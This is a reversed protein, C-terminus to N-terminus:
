HASSRWLDLEVSQLLPIDATLVAAVEVCANLVDITFVDVCISEIGWCSCYGLLGCATVPFWRTPIRPGPLAHQSVFRINGNEERTIKCPSSDWATVAWTSSFDRQQFGGIRHNQALINSPNTKRSEGPGSQHRGHLFPKRVVRQHKM